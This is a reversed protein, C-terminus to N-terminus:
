RRRLKKALEKMRNLSFRVTQGGEVDPAFDYEDNNRRHRMTRESLCLIASAETQTILKDSGSLAQIIVKPEAKFAKALKAIAVQDSTDQTFSAGVDGALTRVITRPHVNLVEAAKSIKVNM